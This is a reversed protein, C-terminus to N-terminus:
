LSAFGDRWKTVAFATGSADTVKFRLDFEGVPIMCKELQTGRLWGNAPRGNVTASRSWPRTDITVIQDFKIQGPISIKWLVTPGDLLELSFASGPGHVQIVPWARLDGENETPAIEASGVATSFPPILPPTFGGVVPPVPTIIAAKETMGYFDPGNTTFTAVYEILGKRTRALKPAIKRPRGFVMRERDLNTLMAYAGPIRRIDDARWAAKFASFLDLANVWPKAVLPWEPLTTLTFILDFGGLADKGFITGDSTPHVSDQTVIDTEGVEVQVSFPFDTDAMTGFDLEVDAYELKWDNLDSM